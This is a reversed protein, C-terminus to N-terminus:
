LWPWMFGSEVWAAVRRVTQGVLDSAGKKRAASVRAHQEDMEVAEIPDALRELQLRHFDEARPGARKLLRRVTRPSVECIDATAEQSCGHALCKLIRVVTEEPLKTYEMLSGQRESFRKGCTKCYLRRIGKGKGMREAVSLNGAGFKNFDSCDPNPCALAALSGGEKAPAPAM